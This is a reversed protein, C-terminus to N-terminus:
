NGPPGPEGEDGRAGPLGPVLCFHFFFILKESTQYDLSLSVDLVVLM